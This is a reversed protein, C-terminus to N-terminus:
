SRDFSIVDVGQLRSKKLRLKWFSFITKYEPCHLIKLTHEQDLPVGNKWVHM